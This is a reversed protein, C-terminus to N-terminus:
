YASEGGRVVDIRKLLKECHKLYYEKESGQLALHGTKLQDSLYYLALDIAVFDDIDLKFNIKKAM